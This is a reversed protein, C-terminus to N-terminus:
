RSPRSGALNNKGARRPRVSTSPAPRVHARIFSHVDDSLKHTSADNWIVCDANARCWHMDFTVAAYAREAEAPNDWTAVRERLRRIRTSHPADVHLVILDADWRRLQRVTTAARIADLVAPQESPIRELVAGFVAEIGFRGMFLPGIHARDPVVAGAATLREELVTGVDVIRLGHEALLGAVETKGAAPPGTLAIRAPTTSM